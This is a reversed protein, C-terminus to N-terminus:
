IDALQLIAEKLKQLNLKILVSNNKEFAVIVKEIISNLDQTTSGNASSNEIIIYLKDIDNIIDSVMVAADRVKGKSVKEIANSIKVNLQGIAEKLITTQDDM